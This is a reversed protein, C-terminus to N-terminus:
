KVQPLKSSDIDRLRPFQADRLKIQPESMPWEIGLDPDSWLVGAEDQPSYYDTCKYLVENHADLTCFGHAVGPPLYLQQHQEASLTISLHHGFTPSNPRLDLGVDFIRGKTVYILHGIPKCIQYHLGRLVGKVSSSRNDQVFEATIGFDRYRSAQYNELFFGRSDRHVSLEILYAGLIKTQHVRM